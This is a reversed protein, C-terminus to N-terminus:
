PKRRNWCDISGVSFLATAEHPRFKETEVGEVTEKTSLQEITETQQQVIKELAQIQKEYCDLQESLKPMDEEVPKECQPSPIDLSVPKPLPAEESPISSSRSQLYVIRAIAEVLLKFLWQTNQKYLCLLEAQQKSQNEQLYGHFLTWVVQECTSHVELLRRQIKQLKSDVYSFQQSPNSESAELSTIPKSLAITEQLSVASLDPFIIGIENTKTECLHQLAIM